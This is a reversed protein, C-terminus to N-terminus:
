APVYGNICNMFTNYKDIFCTNKFQPLMPKSIDNVSIAQRACVMQDLVFEEQAKRLVIGFGMASAILYGGEKVLRTVSRIKDEFEPAYTDPACMFLVNNMCFVADFPEEFHHTYLDGVMFELGQRRIPGRMNMIRSDSALAAIKEAVVIRNEFMDMGIIEGDPFNKKLSITNWGFSCGADLTRKGSLDPMYYGLTNYYRDLDTNHIPWIGKSYFDNRVKDAMGDTFITYRFEERRAINILDPYESM